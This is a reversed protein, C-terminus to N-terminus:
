AAVEVPVQDSHQGCDPCRAVTMVPGDPMEYLPVEYARGCRDCRMPQSGVQRAEPPLARLTVVEPPSDNSNNKM